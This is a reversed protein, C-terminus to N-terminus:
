SSANKWDRIAPQLSLLVSEENSVVVGVAVQKTQNVAFVMFM